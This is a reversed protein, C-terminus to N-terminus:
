RPRRSATAGQWAGVIELVDAALASFFVAVLGGLMVGQGSGFSAHEIGAGIMTSAAGLAGGLWAWRGLEWARARAATVDGLAASTNGLRTLEPVLWHVLAFHVGLAAVLGTATVFPEPRGNAGVPAGHISVATFISAVGAAGALGLASGVYAATRLPPVAEVRPPEAEAALAVPANLLVFALLSLVPWARDPPALVPSSSPGSSM